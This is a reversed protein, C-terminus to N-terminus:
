SAVIETSGTPMPTLREGTLWVTDTNCVLCPLPERGETRQYKAYQERDRRALHCIPCEPIM